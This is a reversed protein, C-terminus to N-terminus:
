EIANYVEGLEDDLKARQEETLKAPVLNYVVSHLEGTFNFPIHYDHSVATVNSLAISFGEDPPFVIGVTHELHKSDVTKGDVFLTGTGGKGLGGGDYKFAFAITHDGATLAAPAVWKTTELGLYNYYFTARNNVIAMAYGGFDGGQTAIIGKAGGQPVGVKAVITYSRNLIQPGNTGYLNLLPSDYEFRSRGATLSPRPAIFRSARETSLPLVNYKAAESAFLDELEKLKGPNESAVNAYQSWDADATVHYLEWTGHEFPTLAHPDKCTSDWPKCTVATGALWGDSYIARNGMMEFYQVTHRSPANANATDFTYAFSTGEIPRQTVGDVEDPQTIGVAELITPSVDIVDTFQARIGGRDSIRKPWTVVVGNRTGGFFSVIQKTWRFPTDTAWAWANVYHAYTTPGGWEDYYKMNGATTAPVGNFFAMESFVGEPGGEASAGNDGDIIITMTNDYRHTDKFAQVIRGIEYDTEALYAAYVEMERAYLKKRDPSLSEWKPLFDPWPTLKTNPPIVGLKKQREYAMDRYANWGTDFKGKFKAIWEKTPQHPAHTAGPCYYMFVPREPEIANVRKLWAIAKDAMDINFNYGPHGVSPLLPTTNEYVSPAWQNAEGGVFGYFYDFGTGTPWNDFPGNPTMEWLPINHEKGFWSTAYGNAQLVRAVTANQKGVLNNYGPFGTSMESIVGSGVSHPNRGTILAARTPSCLATTHFNIYRLGEKALQDQTPTPILGGFTSWSAYGADDILVLLINPAGKPPAIRPPWWATSEPANNKITGGFTPLPAPIIKSDAISRRASLSDITIQVGPAQAVAIAGGGVIGLGAIGLAAARRM